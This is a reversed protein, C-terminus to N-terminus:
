VLLPLERKSAGGMARNAPELLPRAKPDTVSGDFKVYDTAGSEFNTKFDKRYYLEATM